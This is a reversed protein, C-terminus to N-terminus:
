PKQALLRVSNLPKRWPERLVRRRVRAPLPELMREAASLLSPRVRRAASGVPVVAWIRAFGAACLLTALERNSYERLHLGDPTDSFLRSVDWPGTLRNPTVCLYAGGPRLVRFVERLQTAADDPHLHEMLQNSYVLDISASALPLHSGDTLHVYLNTPAPAADAIASAVDVAHAGRVLPAVRRALAQDGAGLELFTIDARLLERLFYLEREVQRDREQSSRRSLQPHHPINRFLEEYVEGYLVGREAPPAGALRAALAREITYHERL